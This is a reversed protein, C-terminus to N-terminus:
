YNSLERTIDPSLGSGSVVEPCQDARSLQGHSDPQPSPLLAQLGTLVWRRGGSLLCVFLCVFLTLWNLVGVYRATPEENM